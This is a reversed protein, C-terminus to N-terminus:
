HLENAYVPQDKHCNKIHTYCHDIRKTKKGCYPCAFKCDKGCEFELHRRLHWIYFYARACQPCVYKKERNQKTIVNRQTKDLEVQKDKPTSKPDTSDECYTKCTGQLTKRVNMVTRVQCDTGTVDFRHDGDVITDSLNLKSEYKYLPYNDAFFLDNRM